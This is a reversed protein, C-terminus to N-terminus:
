KRKAWIAYTKKKWSCDLDGLVESLIEAGEEWLAQHGDEASRRQSRVQLATLKVRLEQSRVFLKPVSDKVADVVSVFNRIGVRDGVTIKPEDM